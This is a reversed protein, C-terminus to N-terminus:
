ILGQSWSDAQDFAMLSGSGSGGLQAAGLNRVRLFETLYYINATELQKTKLFHTLIRSTVAVRGRCHHFAALAGQM